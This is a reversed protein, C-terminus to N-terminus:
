KAPRQTPPFNELMRAMAEGLRARSEEDTLGVFVEARGYGTWVRRKSKAYALEFSITGTVTSVNVSQWTQTRYQYSLLFDAPGSTVVRYGRHAFQEDATTRILLDMAENRLRRDEPLSNAAMNWKYSAQTPFVALPDFNSSVDIKNTQCGVVLLVISFLLIIIPLRRRM